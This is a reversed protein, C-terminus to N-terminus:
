ANENKMKVDGACDFYSIRPQYNYPIRVGSMLYMAKMLTSLFSYQFHAYIFPWWHSIDPCCFNVFNEMTVICFKSYKRYINKVRWFNSNENKKTYLIYKWYWFLVVVVSKHSNHSHSFLLFNSNLLLLLVVVLFFFSIKWAWLVRGHQQIIRSKRKSRLFLWSLSQLMFIQLRFILLIHTLFWILPSHCSACIRWFINLLCSRLIILLKVIECAVCNRFKGRVKLIIM